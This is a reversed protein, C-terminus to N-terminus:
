VGVPTWRCTHCRTLSLLPPVNYLGMTGRKKGEGYDDTPSASHVFTYVSSPSSFTPLACKIECYLHFSESTEINQTSRLQLVISWRGGLTLDMCVPTELYLSGTISKVCLPLTHPVVHIQDWVDLSGFSLPIQVM